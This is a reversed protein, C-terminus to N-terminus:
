YKMEMGPWGVIWQTWKRVGLLVYFGIRLTLVGETVSKAKRFNFKKIKIIYKSILNKM